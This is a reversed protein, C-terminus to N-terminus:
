HHPRADLGSRERVRCGRVISTSLSRGDDLEYTARAVPLISADLFPPLPCRASIYSREKGRYAFRRGFSMEFRALHPLPGVSAPVEAVLRNPFASGQEHRLAFALVLVVPPESGYVHLWVARQGNPFRGNFARLSAHFQFSAQGPVLIEIDLRGSGVLADRCLALAGGVSNVELQRKSCTPLGRVDLLSGGALDLELRRLRPLPSGDAARLAGALSVTVPAFDKRPLKRPSFGGDFSVILNGQQVSEGRALAIALTGLGVIALLLALTPRPWAAFRQSRRSSV